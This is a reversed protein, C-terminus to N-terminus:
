ILTCLETHSKAGLLIKYISAEIGLSGSKDAYIRQRISFLWLMSNNKPCRPTQSDLLVAARPSCLMWKVTVICASKSSPKAQHGVEAEIVAARVAPRM